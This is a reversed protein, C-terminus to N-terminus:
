ELSSVDFGYTSLHELIIQRAEEETLLHNQSCPSTHGPLLYENFENSNLELRYLGQCVVLQIYGFQNFATSTRSADIECWWDPPECLIYGVGTSIIPRLPSLRPGILSNGSMWTPIEMGLYDLITPAIDINQTNDEIRGAFEGDPFRFLLPIRDDARWGNAHDSYVIWITQDMLGDSELVNMVRGIFADYELVSDDFFDVMWDQDQVKGASFVHKAPYFRPGHTNMLHV